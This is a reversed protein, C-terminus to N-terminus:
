LNSVTKGEADIAFYAAGSDELWAAAGDAGKLMAITSVSGAVLCSPALATVSQWGAVSEGNRPDLIHSHRRGNFDLFREYDGSTAVAGSAIPLQAIVQDAHRPHRIGLKWPMGDSCPGTVMVDGGLSVFAHRLGYSLLMAAARDVAYEKGFGGFDIEMGRQPLFVQTATREVRRWGILALLPEIAARTPPRDAKFNWARRLIGSTIDFLGGSQEFCVAAYDLLHSTEDDIGVPAVGASANIVSLVSDDRYRSYKAEIRAVEDISARAAGNALNASLAYVEIVNDCAMARFTFRFKQM